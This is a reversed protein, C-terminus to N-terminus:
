KAWKNRPQLCGHHQPLPAQGENGGAYIHDDLPISTIRTSTFSAQATGDQKYVTKQRYLAYHVRLTTLAQPPPTFREPTLSRHFTRGLFDRSVPRQILGEALSGKSSGMIKQACPSRVHLHWGTM